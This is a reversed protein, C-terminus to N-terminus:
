FRFSAGGRVLLPLGARSGLPAGTDIEGYLGLLGTFRVEAAAGLLLWRWHFDADRANSGDAALRLQLPFGPISWRVGPRLALHGDPAVGLAAGLEPRLGLAQLEWGVAVELELVGAKGRELGLEGGGGLAVAATLGTSPPQPLPEGEAVAAAPALAVLAALALRRM